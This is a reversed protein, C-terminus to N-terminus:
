ATQGQKQLAKKRMLDHNYVRAISVQVHVLQREASALSFGLSMAMSHIAYMIHDFGTASCLM